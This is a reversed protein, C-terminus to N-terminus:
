KVAERDKVASMMVMWTGSVALSGLLGFGLELASGAAIPSLTSSAGASFLLVLVIAGERKVAADYGERTDTILPAWFCVSGVVLGGIGTLTLREGLSADGFDHLDGAIGLFIILVFTSAAVIFSFRTGWRMNGSLPEQKVDITQHNSM